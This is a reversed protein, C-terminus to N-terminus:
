INPRREDGTSYADGYSCMAADTGALIKPKLGRSEEAEMFGGGLFGFLLNTGWNGSGLYEMIFQKRESRVFMRKM